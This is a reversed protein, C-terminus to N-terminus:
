RTQSTATVKISVTAWRIPQCVRRGRCLNSLSFCVITGTSSGIHGIRHSVCMFIRFQRGISQLRTETEVDQAVEIEIRRGEIRLEVLHHAKHHPFARHHVALDPGTIVHDVPLLIDALGRLVPPREAAGLAILGVPGFPQRIQHGLFGVRRHVGCPAVLEIRM